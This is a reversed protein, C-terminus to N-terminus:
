TRRYVLHLDMTNIVVFHDNIFPGPGLYAGVWIRDLVQDGIDLDLIVLGERPREGSSPTQGLPVILQNEDLPISEALRPPKPPATTWTHKGSLLELSVLSDDAPTEILVSGAIVHTMETLVTVHDTSRRPM